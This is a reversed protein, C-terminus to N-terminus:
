PQAINSNKDRYIMVFFIMTNSYIVINKIKRLGIRCYSYFANNQHMCKYSCIAIYMYIFATAIYVCVCMYIYIYITRLTAINESYKHNAATM